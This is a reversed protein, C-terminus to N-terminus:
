NERSRSGLNGSAIGKLGHCRWRISRESWSRQKQDWTTSASRPPSGPLDSLDVTVSIDCCIAGGLFISCCFYAFIRTLDHYISGSEDPQPKSDTLVPLLSKCTPHLQQLKGVLLTATYSEIQNPQYMDKGTWRSWAAWHRVGAERQEIIIRDRDQETEETEASQERPPKTDDSGWLYWLHHALQM